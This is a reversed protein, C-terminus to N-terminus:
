NSIYLYINVTATININHLRLFLQKVLTVYTVGKNSQFSITLRGNDPVRQFVNLIILKIHSMWNWHATVATTITCNGILLDRNSSGYCHHSQCTFLSHPCRYLFYIAVFWMEVDVGNVISIMNIVKMIPVGISVTSRSTKRNLMIHVWPM